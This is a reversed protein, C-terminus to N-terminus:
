ANEVMQIIQALVTDGGVATAKFPFSGTQNVTSGVVEEGAEKEVPVPEGSIMSEDIFSKGTLVVGDVPVREGPRVEIIDGQKVEEISVEVFQGDREVRATNAQLGMLRQIATSTRGKARAELMRGLLILAVIVAAAEYYVNRTGSPLLGPTFAAVVSSGGAALTGIAVLSTRAPALRVLAPLGKLYFQRGPIFLVLTTLVFQLLWSTQTGISQEILGEIGPILHSGMELLFVPLALVTALIFDRR